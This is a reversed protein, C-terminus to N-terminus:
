WIYSGGKGLMKAYTVFQQGFATLKWTGWGGFDGNIDSYDYSKSLSGVSKSSTLGASLSNNIIQSEPADEGLGQTVKMWLILHHAVFLAMGMEWLDGWRAASLSNSAMKIYFLVITDDLQTFQPYLSLFQEVTYEPNSYVNKINAAISRLQILDITSPSLIM